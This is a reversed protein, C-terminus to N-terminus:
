KSLISESSFLLTHFCNGCIVPVLKICEMTGRLQSNEPSLITYVAKQNNDFETGGCVPCKTVKEKLFSEVKQIEENTLEM